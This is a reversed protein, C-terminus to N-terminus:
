NLMALRPTTLNYGGALTDSIGSEVPGLCTSLGGSVLAPLATAPTGTVLTTPAHSLDYGKVTWYKGTGMALGVAGDSTFLSETVLTKISWLGFSGIGRV